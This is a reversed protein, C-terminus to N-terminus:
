RTEPAETLSAAKILVPMAVAWAVAVGTLAVMPDQHLRMAGMKAGALYSFPGSVAGLAAGLMYRGTLWRGSVHFTTAFNVWLASLWMPCLWWGQQGPFSFVGAQMQLSDVFTGFVGAVLMLAIEGRPHPMMWLHLGVLVAVGLLGAWPVGGAAALVCAFWGANFGILNILQYTMEQCGLM